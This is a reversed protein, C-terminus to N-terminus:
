VHSSQGTDPPVLTFYGVDGGSRIAGLEVAPTMCLTLIQLTDSDTYVKLYTQSLNANQVLLVTGFVKRRM